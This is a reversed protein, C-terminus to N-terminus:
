LLAGVLADWRTDAAVGGEGGEAGLPPSPLSPSCASLDDSDSWGSWSGSESLCSPEAFAGQGRERNAWHSAACDEGPGGAPPLVVTAPLGGGRRAPGTKKPKSVTRHVAGKLRRVLRRVYAEDM